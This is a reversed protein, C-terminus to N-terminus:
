KDWKNFASDSTYGIGLAALIDAPMDTALTLYYSVTFVLTAVLAVVTSKFHASFYQKIETQTEGKIKKKFFHMAMGVLAIGLLSQLSLIWELEEKM